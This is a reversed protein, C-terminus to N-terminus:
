FYKARIYSRGFFDVDFGLTVEYTGYQYPFIDNYTIDMAFGIRLNNDLMWNSVFSVANFSRAVLGLWIQEHLLFNAGLDFEIPMNWTARVLMTPKFVLNNMMIFRFVYGGGLYFTRIEALSTYNNINASFSNQILKPVSFTIYYEDQYLFAGVGFNPLFKLDVDQAFAPDYQNDPYLEYETLPNKYNMFGFKFGLRLRRRPTLSVEYSYDGFVSLRNERGFHDNIINFGLGMGDENIPSHISLIETLPTRNIGAWQKRVLTSFGVKEWMGAYAPNITQMNFMYQSFIPDLQGHSKASFLLLTIGILFWKNLLRGM